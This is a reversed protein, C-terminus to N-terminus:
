YEQRGARSSGGNPEGSEARWSALLAVSLLPIQAGKQRASVATRESLHRFYHTGRQAYHHRDVCLRVEGEKIM